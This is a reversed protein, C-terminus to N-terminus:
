YYITVFGPAGLGGAGSTATNGSVANQVHCGGGGGGGNGYGTANGGANASVNATNVWAGSGGAGGAGVDTARSASGGASENTGSGAGGSGGIPHRYWYMEVPCPASPFTPATNSTVSRGAGGILGAASYHYGGVAGGTSSFAAQSADAYGAGGGPGGLALINGFSSSGGSGGAVGNTNVNLGSTVAATGGVGSAGVTVAMSAADCIAYGVLLRGPSGGSGGTWYVYGANRVASAGSGGGGGAGCVVVLVTRPNTASAGDPHVFTGSSTFTVVRSFASLNPAPIQSVSM